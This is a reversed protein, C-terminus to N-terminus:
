PLLRVELRRITEAGDGHDLIRFDGGNVRGAFRVDELYYELTLWRGTGTRALDPAHKFGSDGLPV